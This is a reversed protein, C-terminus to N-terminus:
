LAKTNIHNPCIVIGNKSSVHRFLIERENSPNFLKLMHKLTSYIKTANHSHKALLPKPARMVVIIAIPRVANKQYIYGIAIVSVILM